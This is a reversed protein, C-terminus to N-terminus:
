SQHGRVDVRDGFREQLRRITEADMPANYLDDLNSRSLGLKRIKGAYPSAALRRGGLSGIRCHDLGLEEVTALGPWEAIAIAGGDGVPNGTLDFSRLSLWGGVLAEVGERDLEGPVVVLSELLPMAEALEDLHPLVGETARMTRVFM